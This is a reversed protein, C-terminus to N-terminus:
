PGETVIYAVENKDKLSAEDLAVEAYYYGKKRYHDRLDMAGRRVLYRDLFDGEKFKLVKALDATTIHKNGAVKVVAIRPTEEVIFNLDIYEGEVETELRAAAIEPMIIIRRLDENALEPQYVAGTRSHVRKLVYAEEVATLGTVKVTRILLSEPFAKAEEAGFLITVTLIEIFCLVACISWGSKLFFTRQMRADTRPTM